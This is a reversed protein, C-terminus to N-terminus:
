VLNPEQLFAIASAEDDFIPIFMGLQLIEAGVKVEPTLECLAIQVSSESALKAFEVIAGFASSSMFKTHRLVLVMRKSFRISILGRLKQGFVEAIRSNNLEEAVIEIVGIGDIIRWRLFDEFEKNM